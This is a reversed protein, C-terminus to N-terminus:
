PSPQATGGGSPPARPIASVATALAYVTVTRGAVAETVDLSRAIDPLLGAPVELGPERAQQGRDEGPPRCALHERGSRMIQTVRVAFRPERRQTPSFSM